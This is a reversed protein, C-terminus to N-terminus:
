WVSAVAPLAEPKCARDGPESRREHGRMSRQACARPGGTRPFSGDTSSHEHRVRQVAVMPVASILCPDKASDEPKRRVIDLVQGPLEDVPQGAGRYPADALVWWVADEAIDPDSDM